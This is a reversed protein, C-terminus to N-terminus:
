NGISIQAFTHTSLLFFTGSNMLENQKDRIPQASPTVPIMASPFSTTPDVVDRSRRGLEALQSLFNTTAM